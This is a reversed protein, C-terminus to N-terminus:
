GRSDLFGISALDPMLFPLYRLDSSCPIEMGLVLGMDAARNAGSKMSKVNLLINAAGCRFVKSL